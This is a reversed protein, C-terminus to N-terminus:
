VKMRPFMSSGIIKLADEQSLGMEKNKDDCLKQAIERDTGWNWPSAYEGEDGTMPYYGYENEIAVCPIYGGDSARQEEVLTFAYHKGTLDIM